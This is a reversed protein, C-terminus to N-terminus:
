VKVVLIYELVNAFRVAFYHVVKVTSFQVLVEFVCPFQAFVAYRPGIYQEAVLM